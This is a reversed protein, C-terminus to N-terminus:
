CSFQEQKFALIWVKYYVQLYYWLCSVLYDESTRERSYTMITNDHGIFSTLSRVSRLMWLCIDYDYKQFYLCRYLILPPSFLMSIQSEIQGQHMSKPKKREKEWRAIYLPKEHSESQIVLQSAPQTLQWVVSGINVSNSM